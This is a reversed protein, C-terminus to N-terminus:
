WASRPPDATATGSRGWSSSRRARPGRSRVAGQPAAGERRAAKAPAMRPTPVPEVRHRLPLGDLHEVGDGGDQSPEVAQDGVVGDGDREEGERHHDQQGRQGELARLRHQLHLAELGLHLLDLLLVLAVALLEVFLHHLEVLLM